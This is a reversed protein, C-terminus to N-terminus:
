KWNRQMIFQGQLKTLARFLYMHQVLCETVFQGQSASDLLARCEVFQGYKDRVHVIVTAHLLQSSSRGKPTRCVTVGSQSNSNQESRTMHPQHESNCENCNNNKQTPKSECLLLSNHKRNCFKCRWDVSCQQTKHSNSQCNFCLQNQKILNLRQHSSAKKFQKCRYLPHSDKCLVCSNHTAVYAHKPQKSLSSNSNTDRLQQSARILELAQCKGELFKIVEELETVGQTVAKMEWQKRTLEDV